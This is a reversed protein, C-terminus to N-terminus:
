VSLCVTTYSNSVSCQIYVSLNLEQYRLCKYRLTGRIKMLFYSPCMDFRKNM